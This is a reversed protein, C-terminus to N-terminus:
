PHIAENPVRLRAGLTDRERDAKRISCIAGQTLGPQQAWHPQLPSRALGSTLENPARSCVLKGSDAPDRLAGEFDVVADFAGGSRIWENVRQRTHEGTESPTIPCARSVLTM